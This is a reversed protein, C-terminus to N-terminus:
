DKRGTYLLRLANDRYVKKLVADPLFLGYVRWSGQLPHSEGCDFYEDDTELCRYYARFAERRPPTDTGFLIRNQYKLFFRRASYPQRGLEAIRADVDVYMNPYADLWRGLTDLDEPNEAMHACLYTTRPHRAIMRNRQALIEDHSPYKPGYFLWGPRASLAHWRENFRDLPTFFAAPDASHIAVPRGYKACTDWILDLKPDDVRVLRGDRYRITLGLSKHIKLGKAGARFSKELERAEREAWGDEDIGRFDVLAFTLFRGPHAEDLAALTEKLTRGWGGDLNVVTQVGAADMEELYHKVRQPTLLQTGGGLHNHADVVQFKPRDVRTAKTRLMSRPQWDRLELLRVDEEQGSKKEESRASFPLLLGVAVAAVVCWSVRWLM